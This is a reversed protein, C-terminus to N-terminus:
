KDLFMNIWHLTLFIDIDQLTVMHYQIEIYLNNWVLVNSHLYLFKNLIDQQNENSQFGFSICRMDEVQVLRSRVLIYPIGLLLSEQYQKLFKYFNDEQIQKQVKM